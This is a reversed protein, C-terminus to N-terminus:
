RLKEATETDNVVDSVASQDRTEPALVQIDRFLYPEDFENKIRVEDVAVFNSLGKKSPNAPPTLFLSSELNSQNCDTSREHVSTESSPSDSQLLRKEEELLWKDLPSLERHQVSAVLCHLYYGWRHQVVNKVRSFRYDVTTAELENDENDDVGYDDEENDVVKDFHRSHLSNLTSIIENKNSSLLLAKEKKENWEPIKEILRLICVSISSKDQLRQKQGKLAKTRLLSFHQGKSETIGVATLLSLVMDFYIQSLDILKKLLEETLKSQLDPSIQLEVNYQRLLAAVDSVLREPLIDAIDLLLSEIRDFAINREKESQSSNAIDFCARCSNLLNSTRKKRSTIKRLQPFPPVDNVDSITKQLWTLFLKSENKSRFSISLLVSNASEISPLSILTKLTKLCLKVDKPHYSSIITDAINDSDVNSSFLRFAGWLRNNGNFRNENRLSRKLSRSMLSNFM